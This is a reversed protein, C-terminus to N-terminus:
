RGHTFVVVFEGPNLGGLSRRFRRVRGVFDAFCDCGPGDVWQLM